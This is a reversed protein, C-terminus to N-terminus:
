SGEDIGLRAVAAAVKERGRKWHSRVTVDKLGLEAAVDKLQIDDIVHRQFVKREVDSLVDLCGEIRLAVDRRNARTASGVTDAAPDVPTTEDGTKPQQRVLNNSKKRGVEACLNVAITQAWASMSTGDEDRFQDFSQWIRLVTLQVLDEIEYGSPLRGLKRIANVLFPHLRHQLADFSSRGAKM